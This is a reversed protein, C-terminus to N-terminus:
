SSSSPPGTATVSEETSKAATAPDASPKQKSDDDTEESSKKGTAQRKKDQADEQEEDPEEMEYGYGYAPGELADWIALLNLLGAIWTFVKALEFFRGLKGHLNQLAAEEPPVEFWDFFARPITGELYGIEIGDENVVQCQLYRRQSSFRSAAKKGDLRRENLIKESACLKPGIKISGALQLKVAEEHETQGTFLGSVQYVAEAAPELQLHGNIVEETMTGDADAIIMRGRFSTSIGSTLHGLKDDGNRNAQTAKYRERQILAPLAPLGVLVQSLYGIERKGLEWKLYVVKWDGLVMGWFFTGLICVSYLVAKFVRGQYLHGAGPILFALTAAIWPNKLDVQPSSM